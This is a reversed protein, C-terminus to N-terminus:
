LALKGDKSLFSNSLSSPLCKCIRCWDVLPVDFVILRSLCGRHRAEVRVNATLLVEIQVSQWHLPCANLEARGNNKLGKPLIAHCGSGTASKVCLECSAWVDRWEDLM